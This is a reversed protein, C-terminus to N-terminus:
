QTTSDDTGDSPEKEIDLSGIRITQQRFGDPEGDETYQPVSQKRTETVRILKISPLLSSAEAIGIPGALQEFARQLEDKHKAQYCGGLSPNTMWIRPRGRGAEEYLAILRHERLLRYDRRLQRATVGMLSCTREAPLAVLCDQSAAKLMLELLSYASPPLQHLRFDIPQRIWGIRSEAPDTYHVTLDIHRVVDPRTQLEQIAATIIKSDYCGERTAQILGQILESSTPNTSKGM